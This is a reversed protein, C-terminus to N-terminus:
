DALPQAYRCAAVVAKPDVLPQEVFLQRLLADCGTAPSTVVAAPSAARSSSVLHSRAPSLARPQLFGSVFLVTAVVM